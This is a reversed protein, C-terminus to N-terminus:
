TRVPKYQGISSGYCSLKSTEEDQELPKYFRVITASAMTDNWLDVIQQPNGDTTLHYVLSSKQLKSKESLPLVLHEKLLAKKEEIAPNFPIAEILHAISRVGYRFKSIGVFRLLSWPVVELDSGFRQQLLAITLCVKDVQRNRESTILDLDPIELVGGNIRSLLDTLKKENKEQNNDHGATNMRMSRVEEMKKRIGLDSGAIIIIARGLRIDRDSVHLEGDWLLPLLLSYNEERSDFEDLFLLPLRDQVVKLNRVSELPQILDNLNQLTAMNYNVADIEIKNALCKIFHSKGAGPKALMMISLPRKLTCDNSYANIKSQLDRIDQIHEWDLTVYKGLTRQSRNYDIKIDIDSEKPKNSLILQAIAERSRAYLSKISVLKKKKKMVRTM